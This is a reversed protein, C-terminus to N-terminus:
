KSYNSHTAVKRDRSELACGSEELERKSKLLRIGIAPSIGMHSVLNELSHM